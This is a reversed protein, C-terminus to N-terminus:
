SHFWARKLEDILLQFVDPADGYMEWEWKVQKGVELRGSSKTFWFKTTVRPDIFAEFVEAVPRRILMGTKAVPVRKLNLNDM